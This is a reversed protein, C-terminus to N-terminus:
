KWTKGRDKLVRVCWWQRRKQGFIEVEATIIERTNGHHDLYWWLAKQWKKWAFCGCSICIVQGQPSCHRAALVLKPSKLGEIMKLRATYSHLERLQLWCAGSATQSLSTLWDKRETSNHRSRSARQVWSSILDSNLFSSLLFTLIWKRGWWYVHRSSDEFSVTQNAESQTESLLLERRTQNWRDSRLKVIMQVNTEARRLESSLTYSKVDRCWVCCWIDTMKNFSWCSEFKLFLLNVPGSCARAGSSSSVSGPEAAEASM